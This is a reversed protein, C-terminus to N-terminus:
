RARDGERVRGSARLRQRRAREVCRRGHLPAVTAPRAPRQDGTRAGLAYGPDDTEYQRGELVADIEGLRHRDFALTDQVFGEVREETLEHWRLALARRDTTPVERLLDRLAVAHLLGISIGRGVSPNTCAWSDGVALVGTAVPVGDIVFTRHRDEIRAIVQVPDLPEGETWHAVLPHATAVRM